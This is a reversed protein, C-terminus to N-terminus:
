FESLVQNPLNTPKLIQGIQITEFEVIVFELLNLIYAVKLIQLLHPPEEFGRKSLNM